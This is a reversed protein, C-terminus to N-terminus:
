IQICASHISPLHFWQGHPESQSFVMGPCGLIADHSDPQPSPFSRRPELHRQVASLLPAKTARELAVLKQLRMDTAWMTGDAM